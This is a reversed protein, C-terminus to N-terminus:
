WQQAPLSVGEPTGVSVQPTASRRPPPQSLARLLLRGAAPAAYRGGWFHDAELKQLVCIVVFRPRDAPAFGAFSATRVTVMRGDRREDFESTGTKGAVVGTAGLRDLEDALHRGTAQEEHSVVGRMADVLRSLTIKSVFRPGEPVPPLEQVRGNAALRRYLRLERQGGSLLTLYARLIQIPPLNCGYGFSLSPAAYAMFQREPMSRLQDPGPFVRGSREGPLQTGTAVGLQYRELYELIGQRGMRRGVRAAGINSSQVLVERPTLEGCGHSDKIRRSSDPVRWGGSDTPRCDILPGNWDLVGQELAISFVLPKVVSGPNCLYQIPAFAAVKPDAAASSYSAMALVDGTEIEALCMAGWAPPTGYQEEVAAIARNLEDHAVQQLELDLTTELVTPRRPATLAATWFPQIKADRWSERKGEAGPLLGAFAEMGRYVTAGDGREGVFGVPGITADRFPYTRRRDLQVHLYLKGHRERSEALQKLRWLVAASEIAPSVLFDIKHRGAALDKPARRDIRARLLRRQDDLAADLSLASGLDLALDRAFEDFGQRESGKSLAVYAEARVEFVSRDFALLEGHRDVITGRSSPLRDESRRYQEVESRNYPARIVQLYFLRATLGLGIVGLLGFFLAARVSTRTTM